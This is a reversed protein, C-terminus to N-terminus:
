EYKSSRYEKLLIFFNNLMKESNHKKKTTLYKNYKHSGNFSKVMRKDTVHFINQDDIIYDNRNIDYKKKIFYLNGLVMDRIERQSNGLTSSMSAGEVRKVKIRYGISLCKKCDPDGQKTDYNLCTCPSKYDVNIVFMKYSMMDMIRYVNNNFKKAYRGDKKHFDTKGTHIVM